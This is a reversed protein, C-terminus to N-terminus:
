PRSPQIWALTAFRGTVGDRRHSFFRESDRCTCLGSGYVREIGLSELRRRAIAHLDAFWRDARPAPSTSTRPPEAPDGTNRIPALLGDESGDPARLAFTRWARPGADPGAARVEPGVERSEAGDPPGGDNGDSARPACARRAGPDSCAARAEPGIARPEAGDPPDRRRPVPRLPTFARWAGPDADLCAERVEPGVEYSDAGIGPGLWALLEGAPREMAAVCREIVGGALGRWGAHAIGTRTGAADCLVVPLCDATLVACPPSGADGISADARPPTAYRAARVVDSGHVQDLWCPERDLGLASVIMARNRAVASPADGTGTALNLSAYPARSVGGSRTTTVARVAPPAPWDPTIWALRSATM